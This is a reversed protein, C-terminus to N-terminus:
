PLLVYHRNDNDVDYIVRQLVGAETYLLECTEAGRDVELAYLTEAGNREICIVDDVIWSAYTGAKFAEQVALPLESCFIETETMRWTGTADFWADVDRGGNRFDAILCSDYRSWDVDAAEPFMRVFSDQVAAPVAVPDDDDCGQMTGALVLSMMWFVIKKM